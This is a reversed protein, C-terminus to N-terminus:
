SFKWRNGCVVCECFTTMPEDASRTQMQYYSVKKQKCKGCTFLDTIAKQPKAGQAHFLNEQELKADEKRRDESALEASNMNSLRQASIDESLVSARLKPNSKDKLNMYLSRMRNRYESGTNGSARALVQADIEISRKLILSSDADTDLALANYILGVCNNRIKDDTVNVDVKDTKFTRQGGVSQNQSQKQVPTGVGAGKPAPSAANAGGTAAAKLPRGRSVDTKWKKVIERACENVKENPYSRLKGIVLGLRTEKLLEETAVVGTRLRNMIDLMTETNRSQIAKELSAKASRIEESDM